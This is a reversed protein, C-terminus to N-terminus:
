SPHHKYLGVYGMDILQETTYKGRPMPEGEIYNRRMKIYDARSIQTSKLRSPILANWADDVNKLANTVWRM